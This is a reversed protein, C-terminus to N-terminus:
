NGSVFQISIFAAVVALWRQTFMHNHRTILFALFQSCHQQVTRAASSALHSAYPRTSTILSSIRCMSTTAQKEMNQTSAGPLMCCLGFFFVWQVV